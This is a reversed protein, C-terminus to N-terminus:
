ARACLLDEIFTREKRWGVVGRTHASLSTNNFHQTTMGWDILLQISSYKVQFQATRNWNESYALRTEKNKEGKTRWHGKSKVTHLRQIGSRLTGEVLKKKQCKPNYIWDAVSIDTMALHDFNERLLCYCGRGLELLHGELTVLKTPAFIWPSLQVTWALPAWSILRHHLHGCEAWIWGLTFTGM